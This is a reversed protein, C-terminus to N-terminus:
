KNWAFVCPFLILRLSLVFDVERRQWKKEKRSIEKLLVVNISSYHAPTSIGFFKVNNVANRM